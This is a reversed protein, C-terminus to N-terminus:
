AIRERTGDELKRDFFCAPWWEEHAAHRVHKDWRILWYSNYLYPSGGLERLDYDVVTGEEFHAGPYFSETERVRTPVGCAIQMRVLAKMFLVFADVPIESLISLLRM